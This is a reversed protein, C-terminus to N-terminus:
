EGKLKKQLLEYREAIREITREEIKKIDEDTLFDEENYGLYTIGRKDELSEIFEYAKRGSETFPDIEIRLVM